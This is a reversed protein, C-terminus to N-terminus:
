RGGERGAGGVVDDHRRGVARGSREDLAPDRIEEVNRSAVLEVGEDSREDGVADGGAHAAAVVAPVLSSLALM